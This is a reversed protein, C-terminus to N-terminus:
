GLIDQNALTNGTPSTPPGYRTRIENILHNHEVHSALQDTILRLQEESTYNIILNNLFESAGRFQAMAESPYRVVMNYLRAFAENEPTQGSDKYRRLLPVLEPNDKIENEYIRMWEIQEATSLNAFITHAAEHVILSGLSDHQVITYAQQSATGLSEYEDKDVWYADHITLSNSVVQKKSNIHSPANYGRTVYEEGNIVRSRGNRNFEIKDLFGHFYGPITKALVDRVMPENAIPIMTADAQMTIEYPVSKYDFSKAEQHRRRTEAQEAAMDPLQGHKILDERISPLVMRLASIMNFDLNEKAAAGFLMNNLYDLTDSWDEDDFDDLIRRKVKKYTDQLECLEDVERKFDRIFRERAQPDTEREDLINFQNNNPLLIGRKELEKPDYRGRDAAISAYNTFIAPKRRLKPNSLDKTIISYDILGKLKVLASWEPMRDEDTVPKKRNELYEAVIQKHNIRGYIGGWYEPNMQEIATPKSEPKPAEQLQFRKDIPRSENILDFKKPRNPAVQPAAARSEYAREATTPSISTVKPRAVLEYQNPIPSSQNMMRFDSPNTETAPDVDATLPLAVFQDPIVDNQLTFQNPRIQPTPENAPIISEVESNGEPNLPM